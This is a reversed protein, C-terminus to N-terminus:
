RGPLRRVGAGRLLAQLGASLRYAQLPNTQYFSKPGIKFRLGEMEEYIADEGRVNIIEQDNIADNMRGNYLYNLSKIQPFREMLVDFLKEAEADCDSPRFGSQLWGLRPPHAGFMITLM